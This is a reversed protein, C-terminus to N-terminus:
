YESLPEMVQHWSFVSAGLGHLLIMDLTSEGKQKFHISIGEVEVFQSDADALAKPSVRNEPEPIPILYPIVLVLFLSIVIIVILVKFLIRLFNM